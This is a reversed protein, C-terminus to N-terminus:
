LTGVSLKEPAIGLIRLATAFEDSHPTVNFPIGSSAWEKAAALLVQIGLTSVRIVDGADITVPQGHLAVVQDLVREAATADLRPELKLLRMM